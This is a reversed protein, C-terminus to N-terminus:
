FGMTEMLRKITGQAIPRAKELSGKTAVDMLYAPDKILQEYRIRVPTLDEIIIDSVYTKLTNYDKMHAIDKEVEEVSKGQIGSVINILNSVGPRNEPDYYFNDSISDTLCKKIKKQISEPADTLYIRSLPDADSKSMKKTPNNLSLVKKTPTFITQPEVLYRGKYMKNFRRAINRTLELHQTQDEGVPVHTSGYLLIDAAQLVPYAFLGLKVQDEDVGESKSKWQTMRNLYGMSTITELLWNLQSHEPIKSQMFITCKEPSIGLALISAIAQLRLQKFKVVDLKPVTIAHLDAVGFLCTQQPVKHDQLQKWVRNAGLYNGLHFDGTPQIMSFIVADSPLKPVENQLLRVSKAALSSYARKM